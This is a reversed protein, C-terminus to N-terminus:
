IKKDRVITNKEHILLMIFAGITIISEILFLYEGYFKGAILSGISGGLGFGIGLVFQQALKKQKYLHFIYTITATHYLAFSIAHLSQSAFTIFINDPYLYLVIWRLATVIVSFELIKLLNKQLLPGQFFLMFIECIVGFTWMWSTLELSVGHSTEYITFFNYYGGFALQMLFVSSWFAWYKSLSFSKDDEQQQSSTEKNENSYKLVLFGFILTFFSTGILYYLVEYNSSLFKGLLLAISIFGVSGWLRVRGYEKKSLEELAIAEVYPISIGMSAGLFLSSILYLYFNEVSFIMLITSLFTFFLSLIYIKSTLKLFHKFIFPLLFRMFPSASYIIGIEISNYGFGLLVRPLFIIYVGVLSFYFLYFLSLSLKKM